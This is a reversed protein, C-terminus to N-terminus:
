GFISKMKNEIEWESDDSKASSILRGALSIGKKDGSITRKISDYFEKTDMNLSRTCSSRVTSEKIGRKAAVNKFAKTTLADIDSLSREVGNDIDNLITEKLDSCVDLVEDVFKSM